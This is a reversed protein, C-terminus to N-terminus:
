GLKLNDLMTYNQKAFGQYANQIMSMDTGMKNANDAMDTIALDAAEAAAATDGNLSSILSASFSTVTEMYQNAGLGVTKYANNAYEQVKSSSDKFLTDVGGVLQEYDAFGTVAGKTVDILATGLDKALSIMSKFGASIAESILNGKILDGLKIAGNGADNEAKEFEKLENTTEVHASKLANMTKENDSIEKTTKNVEAQAKNLENQWKNVTTANSDTSEKAENLMKRAEELAKNQSKLKESLIENKASLTTVSDNNVDYSSTLAKMSSSLVTLNQTISSLAKKYDDEGSLKIAGGFTGAM